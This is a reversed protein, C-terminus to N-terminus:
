NKNDYIGGIEIVLNTISRTLIKTILSILILILIGVSYINYVPYKFILFVIIFLYLLLLIIYKKDNFCYVYILLLIVTLSIIYNVFLFYLCEISLGRNFIVFIFIQFFKLLLLTICISLIKYKNWISFKIRTYIYDYGIYLDNIYIKILLYIYITYSFVLLPILLLYNENYYLGIYYLFANHDIIYVNIYISFFIFILASILLIIKNNKLLNHIDNFFIYIM